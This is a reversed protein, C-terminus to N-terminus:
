RGGTAAVSTVGQTRLADALGGLTPYDFLMAVNLEVGFEKQVMAVLDIAALSNGGLEFFDDSASIEPRGLVTAWLRRTREVIEDGGSDAVVPADVAAPPTPPAPRAAPASNVAPAVAVAPSAPAVPASGALPVPQGGRFPRVAVHRPARADLLDLLLRVATEPEIGSGSPLEAPGTV